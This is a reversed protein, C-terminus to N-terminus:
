GFSQAITNILELAVHTLISLGLISAIFRNMEPKFFGMIITLVLAAGAVASSLPILYNNTITEFGNKLKTFALANFSLTMLITTIILSLRM